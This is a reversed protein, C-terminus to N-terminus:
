LSSNNIAKVSVREGKETYVPHVPRVVIGERPKTSPPPYMGEAKAVLANATYESPFADGQELVEVTPLAPSQAACWQRLTLEDLYTKTRRDWVNFVALRVDPVELTNGNIKPGYIEGQVVYYPHAALTAELGYTTAVTYYVSDAVALLNRSTAVLGTPGYGYTASTGDYKLTIVYPKGVMYELFRKYSQVRLEDTKPPADEGLAQVYTVASSPTSTTAKPTESCKTIGLLATVDTGLPTDSLMPYNSLLVSLPVFLGQSLIGRIKKTKIARNKGVLVDVWPVEPLLADIEIYVGRDGATYTVPVAFTWDMGEIRGAALLNLGEVPTVSALSAVRALVRQMNDNEM